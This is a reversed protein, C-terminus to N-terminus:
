YTCGLVQIAPKLARLVADHIKPVSREFLGGGPLAGSEAFEGKVGERRWQDYYSLLLRSEFLRRLM